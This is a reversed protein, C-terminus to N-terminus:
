IGQWAEPPLMLPGVRDLKVLAGYTGRAQATHRALYTARGGGMWALVSSGSPAPLDLTGPLLWDALGAFYRTKRTLHHGNRASRTSMGSLTIRALTRPSRFRGFPDSALFIDLRELDPDLFLFRQDGPQLRHVLFTSILM